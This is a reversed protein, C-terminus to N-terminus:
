RLDTAEELLPGDYGCASLQDAMREILNTLAAVSRKKASLKKAKEVWPDDDIAFGFTMSADANQQSLIEDTLKRFAAAGMSPNAMWSRLGVVQYAPELKRLELAAAPSLADAEIAQQVEPALTLLDLRWKVRFEAVGAIEAIEAISQGSDRRRAYARAEEMISLDVRGTNEALMIDAEDAETVDDRLLAPITDRGLFIHARWRREGAILRYGDDIPKVVIPEALGLKAISAALKEIEGEDFVKRDNSGATIQGVPIEALVTM